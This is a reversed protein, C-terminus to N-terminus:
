REDPDQGELSWGINHTRQSDHYDAGLSPAKRIFRLLLGSCKECHRHDMDDSTKHTLTVHERCDECVYEWEKQIGSCRYNIKIDGM